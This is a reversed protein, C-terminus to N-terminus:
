EEGRPTVTQPHHVARAPGAGGVAGELVNGEAVGHPVLELSGGGLDAVVGKASCIGSLVGEGALVGEEKGSLVECDFGIREVNKVFASGNSAERVAATAVLLTRSVKMERTLIRFRRLAALARESSEASLEGTEGVSKGLGAMVKENFIPSPVRPTGSYVVLRVSNSGVDIIAQRGAM